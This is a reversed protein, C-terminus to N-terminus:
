VLHRGPATIRGHRAAALEFWRLEEFAGPLDGTDPDPVRDGLSAFLTRAFDLYGRLVEESARSDRRPYQMRGDARYRVQHLRLVPPASGHRSRWLGTRPDFRYDPLLKWGHVAVLRVAAVLYDLVAESLFYSFSIRVWGPKIGRYGARIQGRFRRSREADIKLLRHGYPGACSCGGRVQIGFLDNLVAVVFDHHLFRGSPGRVLFSVIPLREAGTDGLVEIEPVTRWATLARHLFHQERARIVGVGVAEKLGFVLGARIGGVIAPTGGEERHEPDTVYDHEGEPNVYDVTGGGPVVPVSNRLLERRVVLVGSTGPGGVFKHPSLFVADKYTTPDAAGLGNVAVDVHPGAAAFDWFSLAGHSHLLGAIAHTDSLIGTVNSAASFSGIKLPRRAHRRLASELDAVSIRGDDDAGIVVVDADSERWPLENSHHEYPGIFVVPREDAPIAGPLRHTAPPTLGLVGLMTHIAGTAGSGTFIVATGDDGGVADRIMRRADERLVTTQRGTDSSETHTNGYWPLVEDLVFEEVFTLARGSATDDAYTMRRAGFPGALVRDDGIVAERIRRILQDSAM